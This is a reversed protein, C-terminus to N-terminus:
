ENCVTFVVEMQHDGMTLSSLMGPLTIVAEPRYRGSQRLEAPEQERFKDKDRFMRAFEEDTFSLNVLMRQHMVPSSGHFLNEPYPNLIKLKM